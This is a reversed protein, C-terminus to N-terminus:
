GNDFVCALSQPLLLSLIPNHGAWHKTYLHAHKESPKTGMNAPHTTKESTTLSTNANGLANSNPVYSYYHRNFFFAPNEPSLFTLIANPHDSQSM